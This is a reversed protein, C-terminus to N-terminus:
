STAAGPDLRLKVLEALQRADATSNAFKHNNFFALTERVQQTMDLIRDTWPELEAPAYSYFYRDDPTPPKWWQKYNRGHFRVYALHGAVDSSPRVLTSFQPEDVNTWAIDLADLMRLTADSQWERHRFEAALPIDAFAERLRALYDYTRTNPHFANPFQMLVAALKGSAVLPQLNDRFLTADAHLEAEAEIPLHTVSGPLKVAFRFDDPTRAVMGEFSSRAPVRYYSSDIEVAGFNEAYYPLMDRSKMGAPYFRGVWDAYSYGCTGIVIRHTGVAIPELRQPRSPTSDFAFHQQM